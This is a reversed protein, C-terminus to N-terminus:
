RGTVRLPLPRRDLDYKNGFWEVFDAAAENLKWHHSLHQEDLGADEITICYLENLKQDVAMCWELFSANVAMTKEGFRM